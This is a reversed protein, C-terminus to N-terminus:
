ASVFRRVSSSSAPLPRSRTTLTVQKTESASANPVSFSSKASNKGVAGGTREVGTTLRGFPSFNEISAIATAPDHDRDDGGDHHAVGDPRPLVLAAHLVRARRPRGASDHLRHVSRQCSAPRDLPR